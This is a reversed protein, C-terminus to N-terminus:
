FGLFLLLLPFRHLHFHICSHGGDLLRVCLGVGQLREGGELHELLVTHVQLYLRAPHGLQVGLGPVPDHVQQLPVHLIGVDLGLPSVVGLGLAGLQHLVGGPVQQGPLSVGVFRDRKGVEPAFKELANDM